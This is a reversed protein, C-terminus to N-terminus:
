RCLVLCLSLLRPREECVGVYWMSSPSNDTLGDTLILDRSIVGPSQSDPGPNLPITIPNVITFDIIQKYIVAQNVFIKATLVPRLVMNYDVM